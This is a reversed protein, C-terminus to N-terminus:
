EASAPSPTSREYRIVSTWDGFAPKPEWHDSIDVGQREQTITEGAQDDKIVRKASGDPGYSFTETLTSENLGGATQGPYQWRTVSQLFLTDADILDFSYKISQRLHPDFFWVGLYSNNWCVEVVEPESPTGLAM